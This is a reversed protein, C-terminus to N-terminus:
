RAFWWHQVNWTPGSYANGSVNRLTPDVLAVDRGFYLPIEVTKEQFLRQFTKMAEFVKDADMSDAAISVASDIGASKVRGDNIGDPEFRSSHYAQYYSAPDLSTFLGTLALDYNGRALNCPTTPTSENWTAFIDEAAAIKILLRVGVQQLMGKIIALTDARVQRNSTCAQLVADYDNGNKQGDANFDRFRIDRDSDMVWGAQTLIMQAKAVDFHRTNNPPSYFWAAPLIGSDTVKAKGDQLRKNIVGKDIAHAFAARMAPDSMPCAGHRSPMLTSCHGPGWNLILREEIARPTSMVRHLGDLEPLDSLGMGLGVDYAPHAGRYDDIESLVDTYWLFVLRDLYAAQGTLADVHLPNRTLRLRDGPLVKDFRFPGSVPADRLQDPKYGEGEMAAAVPFQSLYHQPLPWPLLTLYAAYPEKFLWVMKRTTPCTLRLNVDRPRVSGTEQYHAVGADTLYGSKDVIYNDPDLIWALTYKFDHCTLPQGDSWVMGARLMWTVKASGDSNLLVQHNSVTPVSTAVDPQYALDDTLMLLGAQTATTVHHEVVQFGLYPNFSVAEQWDALVATGGSVGPKFRQRYTTTILGDGGGTAIAAGSGSPSLDRENVAPRLVGASATSSFLLHSLLAAFVLRNQLWSRVTGRM